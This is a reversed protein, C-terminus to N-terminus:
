MFNWGLSNRNPFLEIHFIFNMLVTFMREKRWSSYGEVINCNSKRTRQRSQLRHPFHIQQRRKQNIGRNTLIKKSGIKKCDELVDQTGKETALPKCQPNEEVETCINMRLLGALM